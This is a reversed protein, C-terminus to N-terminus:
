PRVPLALAHAAPTVSDDCPVHIPRDHILFLDAIGALRELAEEDRYAIPEDSRNGSTMVLPIGDVAKLLLHHLPTYPLMVGLWPNGPAVADALGGSARKRLLVIPASPSRLLDWEAPGVECVGAAVADTLMGAFPKEDRHKRRRLESVAAPDRADCTLHYGGLGKLAGVKGALLARAFHALPDPTPVPEGAADLLRLQPGC